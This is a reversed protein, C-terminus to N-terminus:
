GATAPSTTAPTLPTIIPHTALERSRLYAPRATFCVWAEPFLFVAALTWVAILSEKSPRQESRTMVKPLVIVTALVIFSLSMMLVLPWHSDINAAVIGGVILFALSQWILYRIIM